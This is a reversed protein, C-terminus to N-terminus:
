WTPAIRIQTTSGRRTRGRDACSAHQETELLNEKFILLAASIEGIEDKREAAMFRPKRTAKPSSWSASSSASSRVRSAPLSWQMVGLGVVALSIAGIEVVNVIVSEGIKRASAATRMWSRPTARRLAHCAQRESGTRNSRNADNDGFERAAPSTQERAIRVLETRFKVFEDISKRLTPSLMPKQVCMVINRGTLQGNGGARQCIESHRRRLAQAGDWDSSMYIGRSDWSSRMCSLWQHARPLDPRIQTAM